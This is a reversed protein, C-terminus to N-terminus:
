TCLCRPNLPIASRPMSWAGKSDAVAVPLIGGFPLRPPKVRRYQGSGALHRALWAARQPLTRFRGRAHYHYSSGTKEDMDYPEKGHNLWKVACTGPLSIGHGIAQGPHADLMDGFVVLTIDPKSGRAATGAAKVPVLELRKGLLVTKTTVPNKKNMPVMLSPQPKSCNIADTPVISCREM